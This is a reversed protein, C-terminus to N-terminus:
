VMRSAGGLLMARQDCLYGDRSRARGDCLVGVILCVSSFLMCFHTRTNISETKQNEIKSKQHHTHKSDTIVELEHDLQVVNITRNSLSQVSMKNQKFQKNNMSPTSIDM